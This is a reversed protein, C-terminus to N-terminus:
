LAGTRALCVLSSGASYGFFSGMVFGLTWFLANM